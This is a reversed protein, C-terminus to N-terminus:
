LQNKPVFKNATTKSHNSLEVSCNDVNQGKEYMPCFEFRTKNKCRTLSTYLCQVQLMKTSEVVYIWIHEM